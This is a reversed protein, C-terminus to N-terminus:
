HASFKNIYRLEPLLNTGTARAPLGAKETRAGKPFRFALIRKITENKKNDYKSKCGTICCKKVM